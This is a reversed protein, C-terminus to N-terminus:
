GKLQTTSPPTLETDDTAFLCVWFPSKVSGLELTHIFTSESTFDLNFQEVRHGDDPSYPMVTGQKLVADVPVGAGPTQTTATITCTVKGGFLAKKMTMSYSARQVGRGIPLPCAVGPSAWEEEDVRVVTAISLESIRAFNSLLIGGETRYRTRTVRRVRGKGDDKWRLEMIYDGEPWEWSLRLSEAFRETVIRQAPPASGTVVSTGVLYGNDLVTLPAVKIFERPVELRATEGNVGPFTPLRKAGLGELRAGDVTNGEPVVAQRPFSWLEVDFGEAGAWSAELVDNGEASTTLTMTLDRVTDATGRPVVTISVPESLQRGNDLLYIARVSFRYSAGRVLAQAHFLSGTLVETNTRQGSPDLQTIVAGVAGAPTTWSLQASTLDTTAQLDRPAHLVTIEASAAESFVRGDRTAFVSYGVRTAEPPASDVHTASTFEKAIQTGDTVVSPPQGPMRVVSYAIKPDSAQAWTLVVSADQLRLQLGTPAEPPVANRLDVLSDDAQDVNIAEDIAAVAAAFEKAQLAERYRKLAQEKQSKLKAIQETLQKHGEAEEGDPSVAAITREAEALQGRSLLDRVSELNLGPGSGGAGASNLAEVAAVLRSAETHELGISVLHERVTIVPQGRRIRDAVLDSLTILVINQLTASDRVEASLVGLFKKALQVDDKDKSQNAKEHAARVDSVGIPQGHATVETLFTANRLRDPAHLLLLDLISRYSAEKVIAKWSNALASSPMGADPLEVAQHVELGEDAAVKRISGETIGAIGITALRDTLEEITVIGLPYESRLQKMGNTLAQDVQQRRMSQLVGWFEPQTIDNGQSELHELLSSLLKAAAFTQKAKNLTSVVNTKWAKLEAETVPNPVAYLFNLDLRAYATSAPDRNLLQLVERLQEMGEGRSHEKLVEQKYKKPDFGSM